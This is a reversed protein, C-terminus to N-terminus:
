KLLTGFLVRLIHFIYWFVISCHFSPAISRHPSPFLKVIPGMSRHYVPRVKELSEIFVPILRLFSLSLNVPVVISFPPLPSLPSHLCHLCHLRPSHLISFPSLPFSYWSCHFSPDVSRNSCSVIPRCHALLTFSYWPSLPRHPRHFSPDVQCNSWHFIPCV